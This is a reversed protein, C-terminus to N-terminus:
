DTDTDPKATTPIVAPRGKAPAQEGILEALDEMADESRTKLYMLEPDDFTPKEKDAESPAGAPAPGPSSSQVGDREEMFNLEKRLLAAHHELKDHYKKTASAATTAQRSFKMMADIAEPTTSDSAVADKASISTKKATELQDMLRRHVLITENLVIALERKKAARAEAKIGALSEITAEYAKREDAAAAVTGRWADRAQKVKVLLPLTSDLASLAHEIVEAVKSELEAAHEAVVQDDGGATSPAAEETSTLLALSEDIQGLANQLIKETKGESAMDRAGEMLQIATRYAPEGALVAASAECLRMNEAGVKDPSCSTVANEKTIQGAAANGAKNAAADALQEEQRERAADGM